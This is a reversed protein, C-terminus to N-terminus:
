AKPLSRKGFVMRFIQGFLLEEILIAVAFSFVLGGTVVVMKMVTEMVGGRFTTMRLSAIEERLSPVAYDFSGQETVAGRMSATKCGASKGVWWSRWKRM